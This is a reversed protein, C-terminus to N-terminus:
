ETGGQIFFFVLNVPVLVNIKIVIDSKIAFICVNEQQCNLRSLWSM